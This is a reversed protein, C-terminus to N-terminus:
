ELLKDVENHPRPLVNFSVVEGVLEAAARGSDVASQVAAVEGAVIVAVLGSGVVQFEVITVNAAKAMSDAAEVAAPLSRTEVFGLAQSM